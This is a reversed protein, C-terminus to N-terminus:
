AQARTPASKNAARRCDRCRGRLEHIHDDLAFGYREAIERQLVEMAESQYEVIRGCATCVLHDHHEREFTAEYHQSDGRAILAPQILGAEVMLPVARYVTAVHADRVGQAHLVRVLEEVSFHGQYALAARAIAERVKSMKLSRDHLVVRFRELARELGEENTRQPKRATRM